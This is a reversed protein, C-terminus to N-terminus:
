RRISIAQEQQSFPPSQGGIAPLSPSPPSRASRPTARSWSLEAPSLRRMVPRPSRFKQAGTLPTELQQAQQQERRVRDLGDLDVAQFAAGNAGRPIDAKGPSSRGQWMGALLQVSAGVGDGPAKRRGRQQQPPWKARPPHEVGAVVREMFTSSESIRRRAMEM